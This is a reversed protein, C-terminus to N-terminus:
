WFLNTRKILLPILCVRNTLIRLILDKGEEICGMYSSPDMRAEHLMWDTMVVYKGTRYDWVEFKKEEEEVPSSTSAPSLHECFSSYLSIGAIPQEFANEDTFIPERAQIWEATSSIQEFTPGTKGTNPGLWAPDDALNHQASLTAVSQQLAKWSADLRKQGNYKHHVALSANWETKFAAFVQFPLLDLIEDVPDSNGLIMPLCDSFLCFPQTSM